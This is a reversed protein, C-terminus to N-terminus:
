RTDDNKDTNGMVDLAELVDDEKELSQQTTKWRCVHPFDSAPRPTALNGRTRLSDAKM